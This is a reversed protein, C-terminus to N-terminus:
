RNGRPFMTIRKKKLLEKRDDRGVRLGMRKAVMESSAKSLGKVRIGTDSNLVHREYLLGLGKTRDTGLIVFSFTPERRKARKIIRDSRNTAVVRFNGPDRALAEYIMRSKERESGTLLIININDHEGPYGNADFYSGRGIIGSVLRERYIRELVPRIIKLKKQLGRRREIAKRKEDIFRKLAERKENPKASVVIDSKLCDYIWQKYPRPHTAIILRDKYFFSADGRSRELIPTSVPFRSRLAESLWVYNAYRHMWRAKKESPAFSAGDAIWNIGRFIRM